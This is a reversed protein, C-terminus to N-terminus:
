TKYEQLKKKTFESLVMKGSQKAKAHLLTDWNETGSWWLRKMGARAEPNTEKLRHAFQLSAEIMDEQNDSIHHLLGRTLSWEPKFFRDFEMTMQSFASVGIKRILAPGIVFPGIGINLESLKVSTYPTGFCYDVASILGVGGGVAKGQARGIVIKSCKRIANIVNAFGSFFLEGEAETQIAIMEQFSAGACFTRNGGSQFLIVECNPDQDLEQIGTVIQSLIESPLSNHAPTFFELTGIGEEIKTNVYADM